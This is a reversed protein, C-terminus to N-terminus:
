NNFKENFKDEDMTLYQIGEILGIIGPVGTWSTLLYLVGKGTKGLYFKHAGFGGLLIGLVGSTTKSKM